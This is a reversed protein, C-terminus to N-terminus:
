ENFHPGSLLKNAASLPAATDTLMTPVSKEPPVLYKRLGGVINRDLGNWALIAQHDHPKLLAFIDKRDYWTDPSFDKFGLGGFVLCSDTYMLSYLWPDAPVITRSSSCWRLLSEHSGLAFMDFYGKKGRGEHMILPYPNSLNGLVHAEVRSIPGCVLAHAIFSLTVDRSLEAIFPLQKNSLEYRQITLPLNAGSDLVAINPRMLQTEKPWNFRGKHDENEYPSMSEINTIKIGNCTLQPYNDFTWYVADFGDPHIVSWEPKLMTKRLPAVNRQALAETNFGQIIRRSVSPWNWCFWDTM